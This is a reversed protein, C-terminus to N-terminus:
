DLANQCLVPMGLDIKESCRTAWIDFEGLFLASVYVLFHHVPAATMSVRSFGRKNWEAAWSHALQADQTTETHLCLTSTSWAM